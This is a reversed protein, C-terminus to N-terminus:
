ENKKRWIKLGNQLTEFCDGCYGVIRSDALKSEFQPFRLACVYCLEDVIEQGVSLIMM